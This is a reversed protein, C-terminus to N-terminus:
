KWVFGYRFFILNESHLIVHKTCYEISQIPNNMAPFFRAASGASQFIGGAYFLIFFSLSTLFILPRYSFRFRTVHLRM